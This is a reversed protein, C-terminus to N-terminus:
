QSGEQAKQKKQKKEETAMEEKAAKSLASIEVFPKGADRMEMIKFVSFDYQSSLFKLNVLNVIEDNTFDISNWKTQPVSDFKALIPAYIGSEVNGSIVMYISDSGVNRIKMIDQWSDGRVRLNGISVASTNSVQAVRLVVAIEESSIGTEWVVAVEEPTVGYYAALAASFETRDEEAALAAPVILALALITISIVHYIKM